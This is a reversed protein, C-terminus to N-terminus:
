PADKLPRLPRIYINRFAVPGHDGQLMLPHTAAEPYSMAGLTPGEREVNRQVLVGNHLVRLFKANAVKKGNADFRPAQFWIQFSQWQGAPREARVLPAVAGVYHNNVKREYSYISGCILNVHNSFDHGYSDYIQVEYQGELYVGSNSNSPMLFEVYLEIDGFEETTLLDSAAQVDFKTNTGHDTRGVTNVIRDGPEPAAALERPNDPGGWYVGRTATWAAKEPGRNSWGEMNRGNLLPRWGEELLFPPEGHFQGDDMKVTEGLSVLRLLLISAICVLARRGWPKPLSSKWTTGM